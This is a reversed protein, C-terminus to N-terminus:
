ELGKVGKPMLLYLAQDAPRGSGSGRNRFRVAPDGMESNHQQM